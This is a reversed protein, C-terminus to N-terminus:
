RPWGWGRARGVALFKEDRYAEPFRRCLRHYVRESACGDDLVLDSLHGREIAALILQDHEYFATLIM